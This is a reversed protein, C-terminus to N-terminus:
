RQFLFLGCEKGKFDGISRIKTLGPYTKNKTLVRLPGRKIGNFDVMRVVIGGMKYIREKKTLSGPKFDYSLEYSKFRRFKRIIFIKWNKFCNCLNVSLDSDFSKKYIFM